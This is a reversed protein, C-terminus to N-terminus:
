VVYDSVHLYIGTASVEYATINVVIERDVGDKADTLVVYLDLTTNMTNNGEIVNVQDQNLAVTAVLYSCYVIYISM